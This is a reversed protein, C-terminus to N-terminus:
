TLNGHIEYVVFEPFIRKEGEGEGQRNEILNPM